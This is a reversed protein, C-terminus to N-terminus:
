TPPSTWARSTGSRSPVRSAAPSSRCCTGEAWATVTQVAALAGVHQLYRYTLSTTARIKLEFAEPYADVCDVFVSGLESRGLLLDSVPVGLPPGQPRGTCPPRNVPLAQEPRLRTSPTFFGSVWSELRAAGPRSFSAHPLHTRASSTM